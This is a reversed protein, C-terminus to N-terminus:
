PKPSWLLPRDLLGRRGVRDFSGIMRFTFTNDEGPKIWRSVDVDNDTPKAAHPPSHVLHGNCWVWFQEAFVASLYLLSKEGSKLAQPKMTFRYWIFGEFPYGDAERFGAASIDDGLTINEWKVGKAIDDQQWLAFLGENRRDLKFQSRAPAIALRRGKDGGDRAVYERLYNRVFGTGLKDNMVWQPDPPMLGPQIAQVVGIPENLRDLLALAEKYKGDRQADVLEYWLLMYQHVARYARVRTRYPERDGVAKEAADLHRGLAVVAEPPYIPRWSSILPTWTIHSQSSAAMNEIDEIFKQMPDAAPGFFKTYFDELIADVDATTDWMLKARIYYNMGTRLFSNHGETTFGVVGHKKYYPLYTRIAHINWFPMRLLDAHPDYDYIVMPSGLRAWAEITRRQRGAFLCTESDIPHITCVRLQALFIVINRNWPRDLGEPPAVRNAYALTVLQHNPFEKNVEYCLNNVFNFYSDSISDRLGSDLRFAHNATASAPDHDMVDADPASFGFSTATPNARFYDTIEKTAIELTKPNILSLMTMETGENKFGLAHRKGDPGLVYIDPFQEAYKAPPALRHITGDGPFSYYDRHSGKIRTFWPEFDPTRDAWGSMWINRINFSPRQEVKLDPIEVTTMAPVVLGFEGPFFWRVGLRELLECAAYYTGQYPSDENGIVVINKGKTRLIFAERTGDRDNGSPVKIDLEDVAKSRGVLIRPGKHGRAAPDSEKLMVLTAGSILKLHHQLDTAARQASESPQDSTLLIAKPEGKDIIVIGAIAPSVAVFAQLTIMLLLAMTRPRHPM